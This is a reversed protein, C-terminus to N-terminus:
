SSISQLLSTFGQFQLQQYKHLLVPDTQDKACQAWDASDFPDEVDFTPIRLSKYGWTPLSGATCYFVIEEKTPENLNMGKWYPCAIKYCLDVYEKDNVADKSTLLTGGAISALFHFSFLAAPKEQQIYDIIAVTESESAAYQGRYTYGQSDDTSYGYNQETKEWDTPFNRNIDVLNANRRIYWPNGLALKDRMDPNASPIAIVSVKKLLDQHKDLLNELVFMILEPGAEGAHVAGVLAICKKGQGVKIGTISKRNATFGIQQVQIYKPYANKLLEIKAKVKEFTWWVDPDRVKVPLPGEPEGDSSAIWYCYVVGTRVHDDTFSFKSQLAPKISGHFILTAQKYDLAHFYEEYDTGFTFDPCETRYIRIEKYLDDHIPKSFRMAKFVSVFVQNNKCFVHGDRLTRYEETLIITKKGHLKTKYFPSLIESMSFSALGIFKRRDLIQKSLNKAISVEKKM